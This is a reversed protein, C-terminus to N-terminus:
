RARRYPVHISARLRIDLGLHTGLPAATQQTRAWQSVIIHNIGTGGLVHVLTQARAQGAPSLGPDGNTGPRLRCSPHARGEPRMACELLAVVVVVARTAHSPQSARAVGEADPRALATM